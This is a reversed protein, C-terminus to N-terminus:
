PLLDAVACLRGLESTPPYSAMRAETLFKRYFENMVVAIPAYRTIISGVVPGFTRDGTGIAYEHIITNRNESGFLVGILWNVLHTVIYCRDYTSHNKYFEAEVESLDFRPSTALGFDTFYLQHGDTLINRFHADFHLLDRANMFATIAKLNSEVMICASEAVSGGEAIQKGFWTNLDEPVYELFLVVEASAQKKAELRTRIALSGDWYEVERELQKLQESTLPKQMSRPLVRWHYMLPFNSSEGALVWNTSMTHAALERWAGFGPSGIDLGIGYQCFVPLNFLNATSMRNEPVREIDTLLIKKVFISTGRVNLLVATGGISTGIHTAEELLKALREDSLLALETSVTSYTVLRNSRNM